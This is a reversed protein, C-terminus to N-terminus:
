KLYTKGERQEIKGEKMLKGLARKFAAKSIQFTGRIDEPDSKNSFPIMGGNDNLYDLIVASDEQMSIKKYPRLSVNLTGDEKVKIVRGHVLEGLRPEQKRETHHIFGRYGDESILASGERSTHYIWGSIPNNHLNEPALEIERALIGETAPIALLKGKKDKGLTVFLQDGPEPWVEEYLPLEDSSVLIDKAIGINVFAGLRPIVEVVEVWGYQDMQITPLSTTAAHNGKKDTYLFVEVHQDPELEKDTENHHLLVNEGESTLVYGTDIKRLVNMTLTTGIPLSDM